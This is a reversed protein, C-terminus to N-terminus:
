DRRETWTMHRTNFAAGIGGDISVMILGGRGGVKREMEDIAREAAAQAGGGPLRDVASKAIVTRIFAEGQGTGCAAGRADDAYFGAGVLPSDGVRGPHKGYTGGTSVAVAVQGKADRAVAGVTDGAWIRRQRGTVFVSPDCTEIGQELAFRSAGDGVLLVHRGHRLVRLALEVPHRVDRVAAVAGARLRSGEMVGADLEVQGESNLCAGVGANLIPEDEM